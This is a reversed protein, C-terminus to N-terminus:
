RLASFDTPSMLTSEIRAVLPGNAESADRAAIWDPDALFGEWAANRATSDPFSLVYILREDAPDIPTWYGVNTMGHREFLGATHDRFRALLDDLRGPEPHYVRLEYLADATPSASPAAQDAVAPPPADSPAPEDGCGVAILLLVLTLSRLLM